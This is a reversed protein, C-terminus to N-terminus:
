TSPEPLGSSPGRNGVYARRGVGPACCLLDPREGRKREKKRSLTMIFSENGFRDPLRQYSGEKEKRKKGISSFFPFPGKETKEEGKGRWL